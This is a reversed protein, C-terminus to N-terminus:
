HFRKSVAWFVVALFIFIIIIWSATTMYTVFGTIAEKAMAFGALFLLFLLWVVSPKFSKNAM